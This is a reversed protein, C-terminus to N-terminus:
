PRGGRRGGSGGQPGGSGGRGGPGGQETEEERPSRSPATPGQPRAPPGQVAPRVPQAPGPQRGPFVEPATRRPTLEPGTGGRPSAPPVVPSSSGPSQRVAPPRPAPAAAPETGRRPGAESEEPRRRPSSPVARPAEPSREVAPQPAPKREETVPSAQPPRAREPRPEAGEAPRGRTFGGSPNRSEGGAPPRAAPAPDPSVRGAPLPARDPERQRGGEVGRDPQSRPGSEPRREPERRREVEPRRDPETRRVPEPRRDRGPEPSVARPRDPSERPSTPRGDGGGRNRNRWGERYDHVHAASPGRHQFGPRPRPRPAPRVVHPPRYVHHHNHRFHDRYVGWGSVYFTDWGWSGFSFSVVSGHRYHCWPGLYYYGYTYVWPDPIVEVVREVVVPAAAELATVQISEVHLAQGADAAVHVELVGDVVRGAADLDISCATQDAPLVFTDGYFLPEDADGGRAGEQGAYQREIDLNRTFVYGAFRTDAAAADRQYRVEISLSQANSPVPFFYVASALALRGAGGEDESDWAALRVGGSFVGSDSIEADGRIVSEDYQGGYRLTAAARPTAAPATVCGGAGVLAALAAAPLIIGLTKM